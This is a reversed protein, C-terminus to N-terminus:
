LAARPRPEPARALPPPRKLHCWAAADRRKRVIGLGHATSGTPCIDARWNTPAGRISAATVPL